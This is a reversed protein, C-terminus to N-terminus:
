SAKDVPLNFGVAANIVPLNFILPFKCFAIFNSFNIPLKFALNHFQFEIYYQQFIGCIKYIKIYLLIFFHKYILFYIYM